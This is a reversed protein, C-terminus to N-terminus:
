SVDINMSKRLTFLKNDTLRVLFFNKNDNCDIRYVPKLKKNKWCVLLSFYKLYTSLNESLYNTRIPSKLNKIQFTKVTILGFLKIKILDNKIITFYPYLLDGYSIITNM